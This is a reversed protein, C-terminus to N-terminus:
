LLCGLNRVLFSALMDLTSDIKARIWSFAGFPTLGRFLARNGRADREVLTWVHSRVRSRCILHLLDYKSELSVSEPRIQDGHSALHM